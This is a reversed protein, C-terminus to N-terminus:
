TSSHLWVLHKAHWRPRVVVLSNEFSNKELDVGRFDRKKRGSFGNDDDEMAIMSDDAIKEAGLIMDDNRMMELRNNM